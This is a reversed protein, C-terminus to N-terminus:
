NSIKQNEIKEFRDNIQNKIELNIKEVDDDHLDQLKNLITEENLTKINEIQEEFRNELELNKKNNLFSELFFKVLSGLILVVLGVLFVKIILEPYYRIWYEQCRFLWKMKRKTQREKIRYNKEGTKKNNESRENTPSIDPELKPEEFEKQKIGQESEIDDTDVSELDM